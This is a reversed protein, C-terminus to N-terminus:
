VLREMMWHVGYLNDPLKTLTAVGHDRPNQIAEIECIMIPSQKDICFVCFLGAFGDRSRHCPVHELQYGSYFMGEVNKMPKFTSDM